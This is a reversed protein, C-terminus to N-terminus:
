AVFGWMKISLTKGSPILTTDITVAAGTMDNTLNVALRARTTGNINDTSIGAIAHVRTNNGDYFEVEARGCFNAATMADTNFIIFSAAIGVGTTFGTGVGVTPTAQYTGSAGTVQDIYNSNPETTNSHGVVVRHKLTGGDNNIQLTFSQFKQAELRFGGQTSGEFGGSARVASRSDGFEYYYAADSVTSGFQPPCLINGRGDLHVGGYHAMSGTGLDLNQGCYSNSLSTVDIASGRGLLSNFYNGTIHFSTHWDGAFRLCDGSLMQCFFGNGHIVGNTCPGKTGGAIGLSTVLINANGTAKNSELSNGSITLNQVACVRIPVSHANYNNGRIIHLNGGDDIIGHGGDGSLQNEAITLVNTYFEDQGTSRDDGNVVWINAPNAPGSNEILNKEVVTIEVGDLIMGYKFTGSFWCDFVDYYSYGCANLELAAGTNSASDTTIKIGHIKINGYGSSDVTPTATGSNTHRWASGTGTYTFLCAKRDNGFITLGPGFLITSSHGLNGGPHYIFGCGGSARAAAIANNIGAAQDTAGSFDTCYRALNGEPYAYNVPTVGAAIEAPTRKLSNLAPSTDSRNMLLALLVDQESTSSSLLTNIISATIATDSLAAAELVGSAGITLYKSLWGSLPTMTGDNLVNDPYRISANVRRRLDQVQRSLNDFADEHIEPLFRGQNRISTPQAEPTNSRIDLTYGAYTTAAGSTLTVTGGDADNAGAVTYHTLYTLLAPVPPTATSCATVALDTEAFIRFTFAYPGVGSITYREVTDDTEVTM